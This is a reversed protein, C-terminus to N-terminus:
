RCAQGSTVSGIDGGATVMAALAAAEESPRSIGDAMARSLANSMEDTLQWPKALLECQAGGLRGIATVYRLVM